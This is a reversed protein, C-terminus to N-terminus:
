GFALAFYLVVDALPGSQGVDLDPSKPVIEARPEYCSAARGSEQPGVIGKRRCRCKVPISAGIKDM